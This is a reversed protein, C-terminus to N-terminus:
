AGHWSTQFTRALDDAECIKMERERKKKRKRKQGREREMKKERERERGGAGERKLFTRVADDADCTTM